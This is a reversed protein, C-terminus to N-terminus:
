DVRGLIAEGRGGEEDRNEEELIGRRETTLPGQYNGDVRGEVRVNEIAEHVPGNAELIEADPNETILVKDVNPREENVKFDYDWGSDEKERKNKDSKKPTPERKKTAMEIRQRSVVHYPKLGLFVRLFLTSIHSFFVVLKMLVCLVTMVKTFTLGRSAVTLWFIWYIFFSLFSFSSTIAKLKIIHNLSDGFDVRRVHLGNKPDKDKRGSSGLSKIRLHKPISDDNDHINMSKQKFEELKIADLKQLLAKREGKIGEERKSIKVSHFFLGAGEFFIVVYFCLAPFSSFLVVIFPFSYAHIVEFFNTIRSNFWIFEDIDFALSNWNHEYQIENKPIAIDENLKELDSSAGSAGPCKSSVDFISSFVFATYYAIIFLSTLFSMIGFIGFQAKFYSNKIDRPTRQSNTSNSPSNPEFELAPIKFDDMLGEFTLCTIKYLCCTSSLMLPLMFSISVGIRFNWMSIAGKSGERMALGLFGAILGLSLMILEFPTEQFPSYYYGAAEFVPVLIAQTFLSYSKPFSTRLKFFFLYDRFSQFSTQHLEDLFGGYNGPVIGTLLFMQMSLLSSSYWMTWRSEPVPKDIHIFKKSTDQRSPRIFILYFQLLTVILKVTGLLVKSLFNTIESMHYHSPFTFLHIPKKTSPVDVKGEKTGNSTSNAALYRTQPVYDPAVLKFEARFKPHSKKCDISLLLKGERWLLPYNLSKMEVNDKQVWSNDDKNIIVFEMMKQESKVFSSIYRYRDEPPVSELNKFEIVARNDAFEGLEFGYKKPNLYVMSELDVGPTNNGDGKTGDTTANPLNTNVEPKSSGSSGSSKPPEPLKPPPKQICKMMTTSQNLFEPIYDQSCKNCTDIGISYDDCWKECDYFNKLTQARNTSNTQNGSTSNMGERPILYRNKISFALSSCHREVINCFYIRKDVNGVIPRWVSENLTKLELGDKLRLIKMRRKQVLLFIGLELDVQSDSSSAEQLSFSHLLEGSTFNLLYNVTKTDGNSWVDLIEELSECGTARDPFRAGRGFNEFLRQFYQYDVFKPKLDLINMLVNEREEIRVCYLWFGGNVNSCLRNNIHSLVNTSNREYTLISKEQSIDFLFHRGSGSVCIWNVGKTYMCQIIVLNDALPKKIIMSKDISSYNQRGELKNFNLTFTPVGTILTKHYKQSSFASISISNDVSYLVNNPQKSSIISCESSSECIIVTHNLPGQEIKMLNDKPIKVTKNEFRFDPDFNICCVNQVVIVLMSIRRTISLPNRSKPNENYDYIRPIEKDKM